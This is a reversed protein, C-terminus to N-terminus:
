YLGSSFPVKIALLGNWHGSEITLFLVPLLFGSSPDEAERTEGLAALAKSKWVGALPHHALRANRVREGRGGSCSGAVLCLGCGPSQM